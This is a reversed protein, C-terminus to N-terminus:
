LSLLWKTTVWVSNKWFTWVLSHTKTLQFLKTINWVELFLFSSFLCFPFSAFCLFCIPFDLFSELLSNLYVMLISIEQKLSNECFLLFPFQFSKWNQSITLLELSWRFFLIGVWEWFTPTFYTLLANNFVFLSELNKLGTFAGAKITSVGTSILSCFVFCSFSFLVFLLCLCNNCLMLDLSHM